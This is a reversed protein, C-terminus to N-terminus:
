LKIYVDAFVGKSTLSFDLQESAEAYEEGAAMILEGAGNETQAFLDDLDPFICRALPDTDTVPLFGTFSQYICESTAGGCEIDMGGLEVEPFPSIIDEFNSFSVTTDCGRFVEGTESVIVGGTAVGAPTINDLTNPINSPINTGNTELIVAAPYHEWYGVKTANTVYSLYQIANEPTGNGINLSIQFYIADRYEEDSKGSRPVGILKGIIDLQYGFALEINTSLNDLDINADELEQVQELFISLFTKLNPSNNYQVPLFDSYSVIDRKSGEAM